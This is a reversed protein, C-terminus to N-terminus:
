GFFCYSLEICKTLVPEYKEQEYEYDMGKFIDTLYKLSFNFKIDFKFGRSEYKAIRDFVKELFAFKRRYRSHGLEYKGRVKLLSKTIVITFRREILEELSPAYYHEKRKGERCGLFFKEGDFLFQCIPIDTLKQKFEFISSVNHVLNYDLKLNNFGTMLYGRNHLNFHEYGDHIKTQVLKKRFMKLFSVENKGDNVTKVRKLPQDFDDNDVQAADFKMKLEELVTEDLYEVAIPQAEEPEEENPIDEFPFVDENPLIDEDEWIAAPPPQWTEPQEVEKTYKNFIERHKARKEVNDSTLSEDEIYILSDKRFEDEHARLKKLLIHERFDTGYKSHLLPELLEFDKKLREEDSLDCAPRDVFNTKNELFFDNMFPTYHRYHSESIHQNLYYHTYVDLDTVNPQQPLSREYANQPKPPPPCPTFSQGYLVEVLFSGGLYHKHKTLCKCFEEARDGFYPRLCRIVESKATKGSTNVLRNMRKNLTKMVFLELLTLPDVIMHRILADPIASLLSFKKGASM